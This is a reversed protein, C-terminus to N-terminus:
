EDQTLVALIEEKSDASLLMELKERNTLIKTLSSLARLHAENDIAALCIFINVAHKDEGLIKVPEKTKLLSMGLKKAGDEPRAHPLAIGKGIHIFAGYQHVKDIMATIYREEIIENKLLPQAALTIASEWDLTETTLQVMEPTLLEKLMPRDDGKEKMKKNMVRNLVKYLKEEDVGQKLNIYPQIADVLEKVNPVSFGPIFWHKQVENVLINKELQDMLPKVVYVQDRNVIPITSFIIDYSSEPINELQDVSNAEKFSIMPFIRQLESLLILSSSVGSPCVIVARIPETRLSEKVNYLEGGFLITFFGVEEEPINYGIQQSFTELAVSTLEYEQAYDRRINDILINPLYFGFRIRFYAPVLHYFTNLLLTRYDQFQIAALREMHHIIDASIKLLFDLSGDEVKGQSVTTLIIAILRIEEKPTDELEFSKLLDEAVQYAAMKELQVGATDFNPLKVGIRKLSLGFYFILEELRSPVIMLSHKRSISSIKDRLQAYWTFDISCLAQFLGFRGSETMQLKAIFNKAIKRLQFEEGSLCFGNKRSYDLTIENEEVAERLRKIDNLVTGKSVQLFDQFYFVSTEFSRSFTLLYIFAQREEENFFVEQSIGSLLKTWQLLSIQLEGTLSPSGNQMTLSLGIEILEQKAEEATLPLETIRSLDIYNRGAKQNVLYSVQYNM